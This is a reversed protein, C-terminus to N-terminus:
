APAPNNLFACKKAIALDHIRQGRYIQPMMSTVDAAMQARNRNAEPVQAMAAAQQAQAAASGLWGMGPIISGAFGAAMGAASAGVM